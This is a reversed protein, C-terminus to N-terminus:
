IIDNEPTLVRRNNHHCGEISRLCRGEDAHGCYRTAISKLEREWVPYLQAAVSSINVIIEKVAILLSAFMKIVTLVGWVNVDFMKKTEDINLNLTSPFYDIEANNVLYDLTGGTKATVAEIAASIFFPSTVDLSLLDVNHLQELHSMKSIFCETVFVHLGSKQFFEALASDIDDVSSDIVLVTKSTM